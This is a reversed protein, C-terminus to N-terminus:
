ETVFKAFGKAIMVTVQYTTSWSLAHFIVPYNIGKMRPANHYASPTSAGIHHSVLRDTPGPRQSPIDTAVPVVTDGAALTRLSYTIQDRSPINPARDAYIEVSQYQRGIATYESESYPATLSDVMIWTGPGRENSQPVTLLERHHSVVLM